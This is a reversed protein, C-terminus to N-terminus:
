LRQPEYTQWFVSLSTSPYHPPREIRSLRGTLYSGVDGGLRDLPHGAGPLGRHDLLRHHSPSGVRLPVYTPGSM